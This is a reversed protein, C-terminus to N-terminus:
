NGYYKNVLWACVSGVCGAMVSAMFVVGRFFGTKGELNLLINDVSTGIKDLSDVVETNFAVQHDHHTELVALREDHQTM